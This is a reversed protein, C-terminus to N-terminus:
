THIGVLVPVGNTVANGSLPDVVDGPVLRNTNVGAFRKAVQLQAGEHDHGWGHPISVVGRMIAETCEVVISAVGSSSRVTAMAGDILGRTKADEPHIQMTCRTKGKTLINVNHMWSNNSKLDRRGILLLHPANGDHTHDHNHDNTEDRFQMVFQDLRDVDAILSSPALEIRGSPTRLVDPLRSTLAGFDVGHPNAELLALSAGGENAGFCDGYPGTRLQIDLLRDPGRRDGLMVLLESLDRGEIGSGETAILKELTGVALADDTADVDIDPGLGNGIATLRTLIEWESMENSSLEFLPPSWNAVNRIALQYLSYDYHSRTLGRPAPLIVDAHKTTENIYIDVSVMFALTSLARDLRDSDPNSLVPNGAVTFLARIQGEGETEIEEPLVAAPFEGFVEPSKRVRSHWRGFRVGRGSGAKGRTTASGTAAKTFMAGGPVDLNGTLVNVVDVLWSATTGFLQNCTGIRGYVVSTPASALERAIRQIVVADIGTTASVYDPSFSKSAIRVEDLGNVFEEARGLKVLGEEFLVHVIALLFAADTGPRIAIHEDAHEATKTFRPDVVVVRGGRKRIDAMRNRFDPATMLSGNSEFPNAGLMLLYDTRDIDPVPISLVTGFMLGGSVQKPMQDVTSASFLNKTKLSKLFAGSYLAASMNHATPNGIYAAVSDLGHQERVERLRSDILTFAEQWTAARFEGNEKVLPTRVRDPDLDLDKLTSGKPCIYGRSFVDNVDGRIRVIDEPGQGAGSMEIALGCTAECLPCTRYATHTVSSKM